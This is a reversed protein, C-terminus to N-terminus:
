QVIPVADIKRFAFELVFPPPRYGDHVHVVPRRGAMSIFLRLFADEEVGRLVRSPCRNPGGRAAGCARPVFDFPVLPVPGPLRLATAGFSGADLV